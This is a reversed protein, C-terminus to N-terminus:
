RFDQAGKGMKVPRVIKFSNGYNKLIIKDWLKYKLKTM